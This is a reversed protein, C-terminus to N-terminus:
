YTDTRVAMTRIVGDGVLLEVLHDEHPWAATVERPGRVGSESDQAWVWDGPVVQSIPKTSGDAMLVRTGASFSCLGVKRKAWSWGDSLM